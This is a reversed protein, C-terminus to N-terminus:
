LQFKMRCLNWLKNLALEKGFISTVLIFQQPITFSKWLCLSLSRNASPYVNYTM